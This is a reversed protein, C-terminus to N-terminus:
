ADLTQLSITRMQGPPLTITTRLDTETAVSLNAEYPTANTISLKQADFDAKVELQDFVALTRRPRDVFISPLAGRSLLVGTASWSANVEWIYGREGLEDSMNFQESMMGLQMQEYQGPKFCLYQPLGSVIDQLIKLYAARGTYRYLRFFADGSTTAMM